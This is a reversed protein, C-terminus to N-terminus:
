QLVCASKTIPIDDLLALAREAREDQGAGPGVIVRKIPLRVGLGDFLSVYQRGDLRKKIEPLPGDVFENPFEKKAYKAAQSNGPLAVIRVEREPKYKPGKLLTAGSLFQPIAAEPLKVGGIIQRLIDALGSVLEPFIERVPRDAYRVPEILLWAWYRQNGEKLLMDALKGIDFVLCYGEAGYEKWQSQVGHEQEFKSDNAHTSFSLLFPDLAAYDAKGGMTAHYLSNVLDLAAKKGGGCSAWFRRSHRNFHANVVEDMLPAVAPPLLKRLLVVEDSDLMTKYHSCWLSQSSVISEFAGAGTYHYLVPHQAKTEASCIINEVNAIKNPAPDTM